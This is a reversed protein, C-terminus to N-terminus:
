LPVEGGFGAKTLIHLGKVFQREADIRADTWHGFELAVAAPGVLSVLGDVGTFEVVIHHGGPRDHPAFIADAKGAIEETKAIIAAQVKLDTAHKKRLRRNDFIVVKPGAM